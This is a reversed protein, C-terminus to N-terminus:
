AAEVAEPAMSVPVVRQFLRMLVRIRNPASATVIGDLGNWSIAAGVPMDPARDGIDDVCGRDSTRAMLDEVVGVPLPTPADPAHRIVGCVGPTRCIAGWPDQEADFAVCLYRPWLPVTVWKANRRERILPLYTEIGRTLPRCNLARLAQYEQQPNTWVVYWRCAGGNAPLPWTEADDGVSHVRLPYRDM